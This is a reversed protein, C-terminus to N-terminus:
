EEDIFFETCYWMFTAYETDSLCSPHILDQLWKFVKLLCTDNIVAQVSWPILSYDNVNADAADSDESFDIEQTLTALHTLPFSDSIPTTPTCLDTVNIQHLFEHLHDIWDAFDKDDAGEEDDGDQRPRRSLSNPGPHTRAVHIL